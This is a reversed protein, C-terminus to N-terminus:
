INLVATPFFLKIQLKPKKSSFANNHSALCINYKQQKYQLKLHLGGDLHNFSM